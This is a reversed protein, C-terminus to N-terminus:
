VVRHVMARALAGAMAIPVIRANSPNEQVHGASTLRPSQAGPRRLFALQPTNLSLTPERMVKISASSLGAM